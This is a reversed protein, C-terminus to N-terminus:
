SKNYYIEDEYFKEINGQLKDNKFIGELQINQEFLFLTGKGNRQNDKWEGKYYDRNEYYYKGKGQFKDEYFNGEYEINNNKYYLKGDGHRLNNKWEGIYYKGDPYYFKGWGKFKDKFFNGEYKITNNEYYIIGKGNKLNHKWEGIYCTGDEYIYKGYGEKLNNKFEGEYTDKGYKKIGYKYNKKLSIIIPYIFNGYNENKGIEGQKHIGIILNDNNKSWFIPSGSSGSETSALHTFEYSYKNFSKITGKSYKIDRGDPYQIINIKNNRSKEYKNLNTILKSLFFYDSINDEKIIEIVIADINIYKYDRIFRKNRDLLIKFSGCHNNYYVTIEQNSEIENKTIVHECTILCYFPDNNKKLKLLFGSGISHNTRIKCISKCENYLSNVIKLEDSSTDDNKLNNERTTLIAKDLITETNQTTNSSSLLHLCEEFIGSLENFNGFPNVSLLSKKNLNNNSLKDFSEKNISNKNILSCNGFIKNYNPIKYLKWKEIDPISLLSSCGSLMYNVDKVNIMDWISIDPLSILNKCDLFMKSMNTVNKTKWQSINPLIILSSCGSFLCSMNSVNSTNWKSIDSLKSLSSCNNFLYSMDTVNNTNWKSIDPLSSLSSCESFMYSMNTIKKIGKLKIIVIDKDKIELDEQLDLEKNNYYIKCYNYNNIVFEKGFIKIKSCNDTIKYEITIQNEFENKLENFPFDILKEYQIDDFCKYNLYILKEKSSLNPLCYYDKEIEYNIKNENEIINKNIKGNYYIIDDLEIFQREDINDKIQDLEIFILKYENLKLIRRSNDLILDNMNNIGYFLTIINSNQINFLNFIYDNIILFKCSENFLIVKVFFGFGLELNNQLIKCTFKKMQSLNKEIDKISLQIKGYLLSNEM